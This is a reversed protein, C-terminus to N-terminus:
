NPSTAWLVAVSQWDEKHKRINEATLRADSVGHLIGLDEKVYDRAM